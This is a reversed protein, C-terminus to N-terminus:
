HGDDPLSVMGSKLAYLTLGVRDRVHLKQFINTLHTKVTFESIELKSGIEANKLGVAVGSVIECERPTLDDQAPSNWRRTLQLQLAPPLWVLGNAVARIAEILHTMACKKQVIGRAGRRLAHAADGIRESGTLVLVRTLQSLEEIDELVMRDMKLDLILVDCGGGELLPKLEDARGAEGIVHLDPELQLLARLSQRLLVHDDAVLLRIPSQNPKLM